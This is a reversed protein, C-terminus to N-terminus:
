AQAIQGVSERNEPRTKLCKDCLTSRRSRIQGNCIQCWGYFKEFSHVRTGEMELCKTILDIVERNRTELHLIIHVSPETSAQEREKTPRESSKQSAMDSKTQGRNAGGPHAQADNEEEERGSHGWIVNLDKLKARYATMYRSATSKSFGFNSKVWEVFGPARGDGTDRVIAQKALSLQEGIAWINKITDKSLRKIQNKCDELVENTEDKYM